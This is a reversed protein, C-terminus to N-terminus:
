LTKQRMPTLCKTEITEPRQSLYKQIYRYASARSCVKTEVLKSVIEPHRLGQQSMERILTEVEASIQSAARKVQGINALRDMISYTHQELKEDHQRLFIMMADMKNLMENQRVPQSISVNQRVQRQSKSVKRAKKPKSRLFEFM